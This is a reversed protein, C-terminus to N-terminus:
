LCLCFEIFGRLGASIDFFTYLVVLMRHVGMLISCEWEGRLVGM